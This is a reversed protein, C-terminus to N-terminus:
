SDVIITTENIKDLLKQLPEPLKPLGEIIVKKINGKRNIILTKTPIDLWPCEQNGETQPYCSYLDNIQTNNLENIIEKYQDQTEAALISKKVNEEGNYQQTELIVLGSSDILTTMKRFATFGGEILLSITYDIIPENSNSQIPTPPAYITEVVLDIKGFCTIVRCINNQAFFYLSVAGLLFILALIFLIRKVHFNYM